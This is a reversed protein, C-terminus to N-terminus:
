NNISEIIKQHEESGLYSRDLFNDNDIYKYKFSLIKKVSEDIREESIKNKVVEISKELDDPMLLLDVGAEIAKIIIDESSYNKTLADMNLADTIVLGNYNLKNKLIDTILVKSLSAPTNDNTLNPFAIHGIMILKADNNVAQVFPILELSELEEYSKSIVPLNDHSDISTDGHGPFHKYTAIVGNDEIGNALSLAMRSVQNADSGFSRNGIVKNEKNSFVDVVPAYVVNVGISRLEEAIVKGTQYALKMDNTEGLTLMDPIDTVNVDSLFKLRQVRGGEQDVSIIPPIESLNKIDQVFKKTNDYTSFNEKMLIIGSPKNKELFAKLDRDVVNKNVYIVFMQAIKEELTMNAILEEIKDKSEVKKDNLKTNEPVNFEKGFVFIVAVVVILIILVWKNKKM